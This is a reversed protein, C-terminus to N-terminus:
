PPGHRPWSPSLRSGISSPLRTCSTQTRPVVEERGNGGVRTGCALVSHDDDKVMSAFLPPGDMSIRKRKGHKKKLVRLPVLLGLLVCVLLSLLLDLLDLIRALLALVLHDLVQQAGHEVDLGLGRLHYLVSSQPRSRLLAYPAARHVFEPRLHRTIDRLTLLHLSLISTPTEYAPMM